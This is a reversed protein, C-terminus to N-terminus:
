QCGLAATHSGLGEGTFDVQTTEMVSFVSPRDGRLLYVGCAETVSFEETLVPSEDPEYHSPM